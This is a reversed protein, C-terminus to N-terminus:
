IFYNGYVTVLRLTLKQYGSRIDYVISEYMSCFFNIGNIGSIEASNEAGDSNEPSRKSFSKLVPHARVKSRCILFWISKWQAVADKNWLSQPM